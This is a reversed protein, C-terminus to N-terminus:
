IKKIEWVKKIIFHKYAKVIKNFALHNGAKFELMMKVGPDDMYDAM